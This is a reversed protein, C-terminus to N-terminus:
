VGELYRGISKRVRARYYCRELFEEIKRRALIESQRGETKLDGGLLDKLLLGKIQPPAKKNILETAQTELLNRFKVDTLIAAAGIKRGDKAAMAQLKQVFEDFADFLAAENGLAVGDLKEGELFTIFDDEIKALYPGLEPEKKKGSQIVFEQFVKRLLQKSMGTEAFDRRPADKLPLQMRSSIAKAGPNNKREVVKMTRKGGEVTIEQAMLLGTERDVTIIGGEGWVFQMQKENLSQIAELNKLWTPRTVGVGIATAIEQRTLHASLSLKFPSANANKGLLTILEDYRKGLNVLGEYVVVEGNVAMVFQGEGTAWQESRQVVKGDVGQLDSTVYAWGSKFDIGVEFIGKKGDQTMAEYTAQYGELKEYNAVLKDGEEELRDAGAIAFSVLFMGLTKM